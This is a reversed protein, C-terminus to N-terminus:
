EKAPQSAASRQKLFELVGGARAPPRPPRNKLHQDDRTLQLFGICMEDTTQEGWHVDIPPRSPNRPNAASNDFHALMEIRTGRPLAVPTVFDYPNQRNFDWDDIRILTQRSGDPRIARLLFDKGLYHMHPFVAILHADNDITLNGKVEYHAAGAPIRLDPKAFLGARPPFVARGRIEKDV